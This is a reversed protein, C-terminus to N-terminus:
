PFTSWSLLPLFQPLCNGHRSGARSLRRFPTRKRAFISPLTRKRYMREKLDDLFARAEHEYQFGVITGDAYRIVVMDGSAKTLRWRHVWLDFVYHLYVNALIPSIVLGRRPGCFEYAAKGREHDHDPTSCRRSGPFRHPGFCFQRRLPQAVATHDTGSTLCCSAWFTSLGPRTKQPAAALHSATAGDTSRGRYVISKWRGGALERARSLAQCPYCCRQSCDSRCYIGSGQLM